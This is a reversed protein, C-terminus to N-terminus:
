VSEMTICLRVSFKQGIYGSYIHAIKNSTTAVSVLPFNDNDFYWIYSGVRYKNNYNNSFIVNATFDVTLPSFGARPVGVFDVSISVSTYVNPETASVIIVVPDINAFNNTNQVASIIPDTPIVVINIPDLNAFNNTNQVASIVPDVTSVIISVPDITVMSQIATIVPDVTSVIISVPDITVMSQIATIVPDVTSVIISVPDITVIM